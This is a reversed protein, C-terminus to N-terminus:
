PLAFAILSDGLDTGATGHGGAAIVVYQRGKWMYSMPTAQGGAPLRARWLEDGTETSYARLYNDMAAGIFILGSATAVPGGINPTGWKVKLPVPALDRVTGFTKSWKIDGSKLDVAILKGWPPPTCPLGFMSVFLERKVAFPTGAQAAVQGKESAEKEGEYGERKILTIINAMQSENVIALQRQPDFAIGGWNAGGGSFPSLISGELSPPTFLGDNRLARLRHSCSRKDLWAVGWSEDPGVTQRILPPPKVPFPQTQSLMEGPAGGQPVPREEVPFVPEGTDRDLVFMFGTKTVQIVVDRPKGDHTITALTPQAPLDYDWVDHHVTQFAWRLQGTAADLAVVSNANRNDGPRLGGYFDPSPSSTPLFILGRAEDLSLPAWVNAAGTAADSEEDSSIIPDFSWRLEGTRADYARVRGSPAAARVNDSVSSGVIVLGQTVVPPSTMQYEGPWVLLRDAGAMVEGPRIPNSGFDECPKGTGADLAILRGDVTGMFIRSACAELDAAAPDRWYAVGRCTYQNGPRRDSAVAPDFRWRAEGTGPDLAIVENFPTCFILSDEVLIPTAEFATRSRVEDSKDDLAGTSFSWAEELDTVNEPTIARADVYRTGGADGGYHQWDGAQAMAAGSLSGALILVLGTLRSIQRRISIRHHHPLPTGRSTGDM